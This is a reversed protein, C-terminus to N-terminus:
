KIRIFSDYHDPTYYVEGDKGLILRQPGVDRLGPTRVVYEHYYERDTKIPLLRERNQFVIGDDRHPDKIGAAIRDLTPKLDMDGQYALNGDLDYIKVNRVVYPNAARTATARAAPTPTRVPTATRAPGTDVVEDCPLAGM